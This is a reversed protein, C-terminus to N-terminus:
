IPPTVSDCQAVASRCHSSYMRAPANLMQHLSQYDQRGTTDGYWLTNESQYLRRTQRRTSTTELGHTIPRRKGFKETKHMILAGSRSSTGPVASPWYGEKAAKYVSGKNIRLWLVGAFLFAPFVLRPKHERTTKKPPEYVDILM